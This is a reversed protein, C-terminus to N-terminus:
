AQWGGFCNFELFVVTADTLLTLIQKRLLPYVIRKEQSKHMHEKEEKQTTYVSLQISTLHQLMFNFMQSPSFSVNVSKM